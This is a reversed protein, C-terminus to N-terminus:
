LQPAFMAAQGPTKQKEARAIARKSPPAAAARAGCALIAQQAASHEAAKSSPSPQGVYEYGELCALKVCAVCQDGEQLMTYVVDGKTLSRLIIKQLMTTLETKYDHGQYSPQQAQRANQGAGGPVALPHQQQQQLPPPPPPVVPGPPSWTAQACLAAEAASQEAAKETAAPQGQFSLAPQLCALRVTSWFQGSSGSTTYAIDPKSMTRHCHAQLSIVLTTKANLGAAPVTLGLAGPVAGPVPPKVQKRRGTKTPPPLAAIAEANALLAQHAAAHEAAKETTSVEGVFQEGQLCCLRVTSQFGTEVATTQYAVDQKTLTRGCIRQLAVTLETKQDPPRVGGNGGRSQQGLPACGLSGLMLQLADGARRSWGL